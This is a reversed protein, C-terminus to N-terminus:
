ARDLILSQFSQAIRSVPLETVPSASTKKSALSNFSTHLKPTAIQLEWKCLVTAQAAHAPSHQFHDSAYSFSALLIPHTPEQKGSRPSPPLFELLSLQSRSQVGDYRASAGDPNDDLPICHNLVKLHQLGIRQHEFDLSLRYVRLEKDSNYTALLLPSEQYLNAVTECYPLCCDGKEPSKVDVIIEPCMTAHTLLESPSAINETECKFDQWRNEQGQYLVRIM